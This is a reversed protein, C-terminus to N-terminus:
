LVQSSILIDPTYRQTIPSLNHTRMYDIGIVTSFRSMKKTGPLHKTKNKITFHAHISRNSRRDACYKYLMQLYADSCLRYYYVRMRANRVLGSSILHNQKKTM